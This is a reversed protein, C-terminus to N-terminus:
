RSNNLVSSASADTLQQAFATPSKPGSALIQTIRDQPSFREAYSSGSRPSNSESNTTISLQESKRQYEMVQAFLATFQNNKRNLLEDKKNNSITLAKILQAAKNTKRNSDQEVQRAQSLEQNLRELEKGIASNVSQTQEFKSKAETAEQLAAELQRKDETAVQQAVELQRRDETATQQAVELQHRDETAAQQAVELQRKVEIAEQLAVALQSELDINKSEKQQSTTQALSLQEKFKSESDILKQNNTTLLNLEASMRKIEEKAAHLQAQSRRFEEDRESKQALARKVEEIQQFLMNEQSVVIDTNDISKQALRMQIELEDELVPKVVVSSAGSSGASGDHELTAIYAPTTEKEDIHVSLAVTNNPLGKNSLPIASPKISKSKKNSNNQM